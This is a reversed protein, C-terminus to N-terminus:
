YRFVAGVDGGGPAFPAGIAYVQGRNSLTDVSARDLQECRAFADDAGLQVIAAVGSSAQEWCWPDAALFLTEVRGHAAAQEISDADDSALGTGHLEEFRAIARQKAEGLHEAVIPWAETHLHEASLQDPNRRVADPLVHPYTDVDRYAGVMEDLGVLVMPLDQSALHDRLGGAVQRLFRQVEDKKFHDDAAGHGFFVAPGGRGPSVPRAMTDSRPEPAEVVDRLSTPVNTLELEEVRDRSGELLRVSRQSVALLLFHGDGTLIRLLPGVVFRDGVAAVEPVGVPVRLIRHWGPRIFVALGDSMYQWAMADAQLAWAPALLEDVDPARMGREVLVPQVRTLLNKLRLPDARVGSGSRHTPMFVSLHPGAQDHLALMELDTRTLLDM